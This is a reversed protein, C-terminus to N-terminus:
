TLVDDMILLLNLIRDTLYTQMIKLTQHVKDISKPLAPM